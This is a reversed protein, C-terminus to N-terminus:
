IGSPVRIHTWTETPQYIDQSSGTVEGFFGSGPSQMNSDRNTFANERTKKHHCISQFLGNCTETIFYPIDPVRYLFALIFWYKNYRLIAAKPILSTSGEPEAIVTNAV